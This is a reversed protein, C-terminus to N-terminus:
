QSLHKSKPQTQPQPAPKGRPSVSVTCADRAVAPSGRTVRRGSLAQSRSPEALVKQVKSWTRGGHLTSPFPQSILPTHRLWLKLPTVIQSLPERRLSTLSAAQTTRSCSSTPTCTLPGSHFVAPASPQPLSCARFVHTARKKDTSRASGAPM